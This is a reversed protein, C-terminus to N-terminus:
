ERNPFVRFQGCHLFFGVELEILTVLLCIDFCLDLYPLLIHGQNSNHAQQYRYEGDNGPPDPTVPSEGTQDIKSPSRLLRRGSDRLTDQISRRPSVVVERIRLLTIKM